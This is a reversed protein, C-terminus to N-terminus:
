KKLQKLLYNMFIVLENINNPTITKLIKHIEALLTTQVLIFEINQQYNDTMNDKALTKLQPSQYNVLFLKIIWNILRTLDTISLNISRNQLIPDILKALPEAFASTVLIQEKSESSLSKMKDIVSKISHLEENSKMMEIYTEIVRQHDLENITSSLDPFKAELYVFYTIFSLIKIKSDITSGPAYNAQHEQIADLLKHQIDKILIRYSIWLHM